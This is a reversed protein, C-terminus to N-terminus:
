SLGALPDKEVQGSSYRWTAEPLGHWIKIAIILGIVAFPIVVVPLWQWSRTIGLCSQITSGWIPLGTGSAVATVRAGKRLKGTCNELCLNSGDLRAYTYSSMTDM